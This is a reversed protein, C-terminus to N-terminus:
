SILESMISMSKIKSDYNVDLTFMEYYCNFINCKSKIYDNPHYIVTCYSPMGVLVFQIVKM